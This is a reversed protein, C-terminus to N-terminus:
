IKNVEVITMMGAEEHGPLTCIAKYRGPKDLSFSISNQSGAQAHVHIDTGVIRFDHEVKGTNNLVLEVMEGQNMKISTLSFSLENAEMTIQGAKTDLVNKNENVHGGHLQNMGALNMDSHNMEAQVPTFQLQHVMILFGCIMVFMPQPKSFFLKMWKNDKEKFKVEGQIMLFLIYLIGASFLAMIKTVTTFSESPIMVGLMAGMMGGMVGSLLGDLVAMMSIPLGAIVGAIGGIMMSLVTAEFFQNPFSMGIVSGLGLGITMGLAMAIMMGVM